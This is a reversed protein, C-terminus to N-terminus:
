EYNEALKLVRDGGVRRRNQVGGGRVVRQAGVVPLLTLTCTLKVSWRLPFSVRVLVACGDLPVIAAAAQGM